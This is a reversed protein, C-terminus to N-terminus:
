DPLGNAAIIRSYRRGSDKITRAQPEYDVHVIGFRQAYGYAWEFNDMLSWAYYGRVDVGDQIAQHVARLHGNLYDIRGPDHVRGDSEVVDVWASGNETIMLPLDPYMDHVYVLLEHLSEPQIRWGMDTYPGPQPVSFVRDTGPYRTPGATRKVDNSFRGALEARLDETAAAVFAPSYFNVGLMDIPQHIVALDGDAVFSWDTTEVTAEIVDSPYSGDLIPSLFVRNHLGEALRAAAEDAPSDSAARVNALNLTISVEGTSPLVSRLASTALGHALNLHHVAKLGSANDTMGPAHVGVAYGLYSSCWPENFTTWTTVRDGLATGLISAYDAFKQATTRSLWGGVEELEQPLDWHYATILPTINHALLEDVLRSYFDLGVKNVVDAGNPLVRSWSVSFRYSQLGLEAMMAVDAPMRHYHDAAVDGTDGNLTNGPRHSFTDWISPTRGGDSVAGEIQYSATAAGWVFGHPFVLSDAPMPASTTMPSNHVGAQGPQRVMTQAHRAILAGAPNFILERAVPITAPASLMSSM